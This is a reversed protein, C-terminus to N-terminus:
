GAKSVIAQDSPMHAREDHEEMANSDDRRNEKSGEARTTKSQPARNQHNVDNATPPATPREILGTTPNGQGSLSTCTWHEDNDMM